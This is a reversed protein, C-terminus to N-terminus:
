WPPLREVRYAIWDGRTTAARRGLGAALRALVDSGQERLIGRLRRTGAPAQRVEVGPTGLSWLEATVIEEREAPVVLSLLLYRESM